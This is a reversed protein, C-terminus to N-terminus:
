KVYNYYKKLAKDKEKGKLHGLGISEKKIKEFYEDCSKIVRAPNGVVVSNDPVNKTVVANAGVIVKSGIEVGPLITANIGIYVDNGIKIPKTIELDNQYKRFLLTGGDHTVFSVNNTIHVNEGLSIIWPETGWYVKGYIKLSGAPFNVGIFHAYKVPFLREFIIRAPVTLIKIIRTLSM